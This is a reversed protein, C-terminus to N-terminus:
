TGSSVSIMELAALVPLRSLLSALLLHSHLKQSSSSPLLDSKYYLNVYKERLFKGFQQYFDWKMHATNDEAITSVVLM